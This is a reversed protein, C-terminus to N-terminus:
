LFVKDKSLESLASPPGSPSPSVFPPEELKRPNMRRLMYTDICGWPLGVQPPWIPYPPQRADQNYRSNIGHASWAAEEGTNMVWVSNQRRRNRVCGSSLGMESRGSPEGWREEWPQNRKVRCAESLYWGEGCLWVKRPWVIELLKEGLSLNMKKNQDVTKM